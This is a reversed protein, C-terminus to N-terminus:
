KREGEFGELTRESQRRCGVNEFLEKFSISGRIRDFNHQWSSLVGKFGRCLIPPLSDSLLHLKASGELLLSSGLCHNEVSRCFDEFNLLYPLISHSPDSTTWWLELSHIDAILAVASWARVAFHFPSLKWATKSRACFHSAYWDSKYQANFHSLSKVEHDRITNQRTHWKVFCSVWDVSADTIYM